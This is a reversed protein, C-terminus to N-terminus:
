RKRKEAAAELAEVRFELAVLRDIEPEDNVVVPVPAEDTWGAVLHAQHNAKDQVTTHGKKPHYVMRPYELDDKQEDEM